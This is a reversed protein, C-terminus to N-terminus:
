YPFDNMVDFVCYKGLPNLASLPLLFSVSLSNVINNELLNM